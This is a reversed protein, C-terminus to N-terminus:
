SNLAQGTAPAEARRRMQEADSKLLPAISCLFILAAIDFGILLATRPDSGLAAAAASAAALIAAFVLFRAPAIHRGVARKAGESM